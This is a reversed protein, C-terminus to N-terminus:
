RNMMKAIGAIWPNKGSEGGGPPPGPPTYTLGSYEWGLTARDSADITGDPLPRMMGFLYAQVSARKNRTDIAM